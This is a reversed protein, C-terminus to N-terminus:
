TGPDPRAQPPDVCVGLKQRPRHIRQDLASLSRRRGEFGVPYVHQLFGTICTKCARPSRSRFPLWRVLDVRENFPHLSDERPKVALDDAMRRFRETSPMASGPKTGSPDKRAATDLLTQVRELDLQEAMFEKRLATDLVFEATLHLMKPLPAGM